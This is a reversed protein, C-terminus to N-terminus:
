IYNVEYSNEFFRIAMQLLTKYENIRALFRKKVKTLELILLEKQGFTDGNLSLIDARTIYDDIENTIIEVTPNFEDLCKRYSQAIEFSNGFEATVKPFFNDLIKVTKQIIKRANILFEQWQEQFIKKTNVKERWIEINSKVNEYLSKSENLMREIDSMM